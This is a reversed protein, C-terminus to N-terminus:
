SLTENEVKIWKCEVRLVLEESDVQRLVMSGSQTKNRESNRRTTHTYGISLLIERRVTWPHPASTIGKTRSSGPRTTIPVSPVSGMHM